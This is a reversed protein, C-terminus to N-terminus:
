MLRWDAVIVFHVPRDRESTRIEHNELLPYAVSEASQLRSLYDLASTLTRAEGSIRVTKKNRDPAIELLAVDKGNDRAASELDDLLTSWPTTLESTAASVEAPDVSSAQSRQVRDTSEYRSLNITNLDSEISMAQYDNVTLYAAGAGLLLVLLGAVPFRRRPKSFDLEIRVPMM